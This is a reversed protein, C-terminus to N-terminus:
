SIPPEEMAHHGYRSASKGQVDGGVDEGAPADRITKLKRWTFAQEAHDGRANRIHVPKPEEDRVLHVPPEMMHHSMRQHKAHDDRDRERNKRRLMADFTEHQVECQKVEM